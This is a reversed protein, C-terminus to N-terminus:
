LRSVHSGKRHFYSHHPRFMRDLSRLRFGLLIWMVGFLLAYAGITWVIVLSGAMPQLILAIGLAVSLLGGAALRWENTIARRLRIAAAIELIGTLIAWAAIMGLLALTTVGPWILTAVGAAIGVLGELLFVWWRPSDRTHTLGAALAIFGDVLAYFGFLMVLAFLTAGPWIFAVVGFVIAIIGRLIVLWWNQIINVM